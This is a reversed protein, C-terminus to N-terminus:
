YSSILGNLMQKQGGPVGDLCTTKSRKPLLGMPSWQSLPRVHKEFHELTHPPQAPCQHTRYASGGSYITNSCNDSACANRTNDQPQTELYNVGLFHYERSVLGIRSKKRSLSLKREKLIGMVKQKCRNLQRKSKCLVILDDQYRLYFVETQTLADDLPKLYLASFLQSLPGRLSIGNDPNITGWPTDIPNKIINTLMFQVKPDDFYHEIDKLLLCHSISKYYSKIDLRMVFPYQKSKLVEQLRSTALKVGNPGHLHLCNPNTIYPFTPKLQKLLLHQLIRDTLHLQDVREDKFYYRKLHHPNYTGRVLTCIAELLWSDLDRALFHIDHNHNLHQKQRYISTFLAKGRTSM